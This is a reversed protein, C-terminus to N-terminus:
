KEFNEHSIKGERSIKTTIIKCFNKSVDRIQILLVEM